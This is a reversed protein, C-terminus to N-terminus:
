LWMKRSKIPTAHFEEWDLLNDEPVDLAISMEKNIVFNVFYYGRFSGHSINEIIGETGFKIRLESYGALTMGSAKTLPIRAYGINPNYFPTNPPNDEKILVIRQGDKFKQKPM